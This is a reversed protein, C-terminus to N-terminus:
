LVVLVQKGPYKALPIPTGKRTKGDSRPIEEKPEAGGNNGTQSLQNQNTVAVIYCVLCVM